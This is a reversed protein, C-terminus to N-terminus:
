TGVVTILRVQNEMEVVRQELEEYSPKNTM